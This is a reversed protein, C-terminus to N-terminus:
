SSQLLMLPAVLVRPLALLSHAMTQRHPPIQEQQDGIGWIEAACPFLVSLAQSWILCM